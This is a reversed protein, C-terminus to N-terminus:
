CFCKCNDVKIQALDSDEFDEASFDFPDCKTRRRQMVDYEVQKSELTIGHSKEGEYILYSFSPGLPNLNTIFFM